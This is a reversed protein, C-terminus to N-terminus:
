RTGAPATAKKEAAGAVPPLKMAGPVLPQVPVGPRLKMMSDVIV